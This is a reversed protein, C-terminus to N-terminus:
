NYTVVNDVIIVIYHMLNESTIRRTYSLTYGKILREGNGGCDLEQFWLKSEAKIFENKQPGSKM